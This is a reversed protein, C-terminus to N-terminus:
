RDCEVAVPLVVTLVLGAVGFGMSSVSSYSAEWGQHVLVTQPQIFPQLLDCNFLTRSQSLPRRLSVLEASGVGPVM